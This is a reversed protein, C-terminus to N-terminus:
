GDEGGAGRGAGKAQKKPQALVREERAKRREKLVASDKQLESATWAKLAPCICLQSKHAAGSMLLMDGHSDHSSEEFKYSLRDECIQLSRCVLEFSANAAGDIQDYCLCTEIVRRCMEHQMVLPDSDLLERKIEVHCALSPPKGGPCGDM